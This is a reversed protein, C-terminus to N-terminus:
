NTALSTSDALRENRLQGNNRRRNALEQSSKLPTTPIPVVVGLGSWPNFM